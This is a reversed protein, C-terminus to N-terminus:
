VSAPPTPGTAQRAQQLFQRSEEMTLKYEHGNLMHLTVHQGKRSVDIASIHDTRILRQQPSTPDNLQIYNPM